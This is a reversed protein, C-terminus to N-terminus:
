KVSWSLVLILFSRDPDNTQITFSKKYNGDTLNKTNLNVILDATKGGPISYKTSRVTLEKNNNIVRRIELTNLGRNNIKFKDTRKSNTKITGLKLEYQSMELIPSKRKQDLTQKSFDEIVNGVVSFKYEDSFIKKGNIILYIDDSIPGWQSCNKSNFTFTIKGEENPKLTEPTITATLYTPLNEITLKIVGKTPNQIDITRGQKEGKNVNNMQVVKTKTTLEGMNIPYETNENTQKPIVEGKIMLVVQEDTANSYVTISKTFTGPRGAPNYTVTISGKKGPEIPEKTWTPTTCGCSAQVRNVVLPSMGKNTFDFVYTIKGDAEKVNGFDHEMVEFNIVAKQAKVLFSFTLCLFIISFKKM